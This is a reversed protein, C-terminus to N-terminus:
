YNVTLGLVDSNNLASDVKCYNASYDRGGMAAGDNAYLMFGKITGSALAQAASLPLTFTKTQGNGISGLAGYSVKGTHPNGSASAITIGYLTLAVEASKGSGSMRTLTLSASKVTKGSFGGTPFWMCGAWEGAGKYYGQRIVNDAQRWADTYSDTASAGVTITNPATEPTPKSGQDVTVSTSAFVKGAWESVAWTTSDCPMTGSAHIIGNNVAVRCNGKCSYAQITGMQQAYLARSHDYLECNHVDAKAGRYAQVGYSTQSADAGTIICNEIIAMTQAGTCSIGHNGSVADINLHKVAVVCGSYMIELRGVLKARNSSNGQITIVGTGATGSIICTGYERMGAALNVTVNKGIWRNSLAALADALSRFYNGAAVQASTAAPDVYLAAAGNYRVAVDPCTLSQMQAGNEDISLMNTEGDADVIDVNFEPTSIKVEDKTITVTSGARFETPYQSWGTARNGFELKPAYIRVDGNKKLFFQAFIHTNSGFTGDGSFKDANLMFTTNIHVWTGNALTRNATADEGLEVKGPVVLTNKTSYNLRNTDGTSLAITWPIGADVATWDPSYVWASLTVERGNWGAPLRTLPSNGSMWTNATAGTSALKLRDFGSADTYTTAGNGLRWHDGDTGVTLKQSDRLLQSGDINIESVALSIQGPILDIQSQLKEETDGVEKSIESVALSIQGPIMDIQSQLHKVDGEIDDPSYSWDTAKNGWELKPAVTRVDGNQRLWFQVFMHTCDEFDYETTSAAFDDENMDFVSWGRVLEGSKLQSDYSVDAGWEAKGPKVVNYKSCYFGREEAGNSLCVTWTVGKDVASWATASLYASLTLKRGQWDDPLKMLPTRVSSQWESTLGTREQRIRTHNPWAGSSNKYTSANWLKWGKDTNIDKTAPILQAGGIRVGDAVNSVYLRLYTNSSIDLANLAQITAESAFLDSVDIEAATISNALIENGTITKAAIQAATISKAVIVSGDIYNKYQEQTLQTMTLGSSTANIKYFLGDDGALLLRDASLTGTKIVDANLSVIKASTISGDAIQATGIAGNDIIGSNATITGAKIQEATISKSTIKDATITNAKIIKADLSNVALNTVVGTVGGVFNEIRTVPLSGDENFVSGTNGFHASPQNTTPMVSACTMSLGGDFTLQRNTVLLKATSNDLATVTIQAGCTVRPDGLWNLTAGAYSLDKLADRVNRAITATYLPNGSIEICNTSKDATSANVAYRVPEPTQADASEPVMTVRLCNFAFHTGGTLTYNLYQASNINWSKGRGNTVIELKGSPNIQAFGGACAAIYGVLDRLTAKEPWRPLKAINIGGNLFSSSALTVGASTAVIGLLKSLTCPYISGDDTFQSNFFLNLADSGNLTLTSGSEPANAATVYWVGADTYEYETGSKSGMQVYVKAGDLAALSYQCASKLVVLTYNTSMAMGIPLGSSAASADQRYSYIDKAAITFQTGNGLTVTAKIDLDRYTGSFNVAM